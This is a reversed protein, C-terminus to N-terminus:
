SDLEMIREYIRESNNKDNYAFLTEVRKKYEESLECNRELTAIMEDVTSELDTCVPGMGDDDYSFYGEDFIQGEFFEEKDFQAYLIPKRLYAFDFAVSSYDTILFAARSFIDKYDVFGANIDFVDNAEFDRYQEKHIPHLCFLGKYGKEKMKEMLRPHNILSNYFKYYDTENFKDYYVSKTESDYSEKISRRWTPLVVVLKEAKNNLEDFRALGTLAVEESDYLYNTEAISEYEMRTSTIFMSINKNFKQLWASLDNMIVGHQLFIYDFNMLDALYRRNVGGFPNIVYEGGSSSIIKDASLFYFRYLFDDFHIVKGIKKMRAEDESDKNIVFIPKIKKNGKQCVYKFFAEGNDNAKDSRDSILWIKKGGRLFLTFLIYLIRTLFARRHKKMLLWILCKAENTAASVLLSAPKFVRMCTRYCKYLYPKSVTYSFVFSNYNAIFKGYNIGVNCVMDDFYIVPRLEVYKEKRFDHEDLPVDIKFHRCATKIGFFTHETKHPFDKLEPEVEKGNVFLVFKTKHETAKLVWKSIMGEVHLTNNKIKVINVFCANNNLGLSVMKIDNYYLAQEEHNYVMDKFFTDSNKKISMATLKRIISVHVKSTLIVKEDVYSFLDHLMDYYDQYEEQTLVGEPIENDLRWGIDYALINQVYPIVEGYNKKSIDILSYYYKRPSASYYEKNMRQNQVASSQDLRKRYYHLTDALIGLKAKKLIIENVFLGDEGFKMGHVFRTDGIAAEKIVSSTVHLQISTSEEEDFLNAVRNGPKYKYDVAHFSNSAEFRKMRCSVVDVEDYNAEFFRYIKRFADMEWKDDSDLFNVYKGEVFPIGTNRAASVGANEQKIYKINKPYEKVYRQCIEDSNDPSGDNVLIIQINKKFGITQNIVSDVTEELFKEVNYVPIVVSFKYKYDKM